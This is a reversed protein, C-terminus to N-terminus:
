FGDSFAALSFVLGEFAGADSSSWGPFTTDDAFAFFPDLDVASAGPDGSAGDVDDEAADHLAEVLVIRRVIVPLFM